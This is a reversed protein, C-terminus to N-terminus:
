EPEDKDPESTFMNENVINLDEDSLPNDIDEAKKNRPRFQGGDDGTVDDFIDVTDVPGGKADDREDIKEVDIIKIHHKRKETDM